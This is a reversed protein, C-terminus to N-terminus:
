HRLSNHIIPALLSVLRLQWDAFGLSRDGGTGECDESQGAMVNTPTQDDTGCASLHVLGGLIHGM